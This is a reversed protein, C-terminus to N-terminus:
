EESTTRAVFRDAAAFIRQKRDEAMRDCTRVAMNMRHNAAFYDRHRDIFRWYLGDWVDEWDGRPFDGLKRIYNAGSIYPKTAFLGGDSMLGMGYVNAQMVWDASDVFMEMFWRYVERPHIGALNMVGALVMLREIHHCYGYRRAKAISYDLPALGTTGDYWCAKLRRHHGWHNGNEMASAYRRHMGHVFERWGIIQRVFGEVSSLPVGGSRYRTIAREVVEQPTILGLNLGPSLVSHFVFPDRDTLADQFPGFAALGEDLFRRLRRLWAARTVPLWFAESEGAHDPFQEDVLCMVKRTIADPQAPPLGPPHVDAPLRRRNEADLSYRGGEPRGGASMLLGTARRQREYFTKMFPGSRADMRSALAEGPTMFMPTPHTLLEIGEAAAWDALRRAFFADAVEGVHLATARRRRMYAGLPDEFGRAPHRPDLAQYHVEFGKDRLADRYHRMAALFLILKHRHHRYRTCLGYDEAMYVSMGRFRRLRGPPFLQDGLILLVQKSL